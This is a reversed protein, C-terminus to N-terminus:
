RVEAVIPKLGRAVGDDLFKDWDDAPGIIPRWSGTGEEDSDGKASHRAIRVCEERTGRYFEVILNDDNTEVRYTVVWQETMSGGNTCRERRLHTSRTRQMKGTLM